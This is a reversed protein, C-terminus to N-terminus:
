LKRAVQLGADKNELHAELELLDALTKFPLDPLGQLGPNSAGATNALEALLQTHSIQQTLKIMNVAVARTYSEDM